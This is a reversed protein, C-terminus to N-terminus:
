SEILDYKKILERFKIDVPDYTKSLILFRGNFYIKFAKYGGLTKGFSIKAEVTEYKDTFIFIKGNKLETETM